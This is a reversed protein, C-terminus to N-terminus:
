VISRSPAVAGSGSAAFLGMRNADLDLGAANERLYQLLALVDDAPATSGYLVAAMGSAAILRSWTTFPGFTRIGAEPDPFGMAVVVVPARTGAPRAPYYIQVALDTGNTSRYTLDRVEVADMGPLTYVVKKKRIERLKAERDTQDSM